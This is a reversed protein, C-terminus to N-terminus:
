DIARRVNELAAFAEDDNAILGDLYDAFGQMMGARYPLRLASDYAQDSRSGKAESWHSISLLVDDKNFGAEKLMTSATGRFGHITHKGSLDLTEALAKRVNGVSMFKSGHRQKRIAPFVIGTKETIAHLERLIAVAQRPLPVMHERDVKMREPPITWVGADLDFERWEAFQLEKSRVFTLSILHLYRSVFFSLSRIGTLVVVLAEGNRASPYNVPKPRPFDDILYQAPNDGRYINRKHAFRYVANIMRVLQTGTVPIKKYIPKIVQEIGVTTILALPVGAFHKKLHNEYTNVYNINGRGGPDKRKENKFEALLAFVVDFTAATVVAAQTTSVRRQQSPDIGKGVLTRADDCAARAQKLSMDDYTGLTFMREKVDPGVKIRYRLRFSISGSPAVELVMSNADAVRYPKGNPHPKLGQIEKDTWRDGAPEPKTWAATQKTEM